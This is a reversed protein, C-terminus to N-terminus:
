RPLSLSVKLHALDGAVTKVALAAGQLPILDRTKKTAMAGIEVGSAVPTLARGDDDTRLTASATLFGQVGITLRVEIGRVRQNHEDVVEVLLDAEGPKLRVAQQLPETGAKIEGFFLEHQPVGRELLLYRGSAKHSLEFALKGERDSWAGPLRPTEGPLGYLGVGEVPQGGASLVTLLATRVAPFAATVADTGAPISVNLSNGVSDNLLLICDGDFRLHLLLEQEGTRIPPLRCPVEGFDANKCGQVIARPDSGDPRRARIAVTRDRPVREALCGLDAKMKGEPWQKEVDLMRGGNNLMAVVRVVGAAAPEPLAWRAARKDTADRALNRRGLAIQFRGDCQIVASGEYVEGDGAGKMCAGVRVHLPPKDDVDLLTGSLVFGDPEPAAPCVIVLSATKGREVTVTAPPPAALNRHDLNAQQPRVFFTGVPVDKVVAHGREDTTGWRMPAGEAPWRMRVYTVLHVGVDALPTGDTDRLDLEVTGTAYLRLVIKSDGPEVMASAGILDHGSVPFLYMPGGGAPATSMTFEGQENTTTSWNPLINTAPYEGAFITVGPAPRDDADVVTGTVPECPVLQLTVEEFTGDDKVAATAPIFAYRLLEYGPVAMDYAVRGALTTITDTFVGHENMNLVKTSDRKVVAGAAPMGNPATLKVTLSLEVPDDVEIVGCAAEEGQYVQAYLGHKEYPPMARVRVTMADCIPVIFALTFRGDADTVACPFGDATEAGAVPKVEPSTVAVRVGEVPERTASHVVCGSLRTPSYEEAAFCLPSVAAFAALLIMAFMTRSSFAPM